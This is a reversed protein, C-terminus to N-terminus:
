KLKRFIHLNCFIHLIKKASKKLESFYLVSKQSRHWHAKTLFSEGSYLVRRKGWRLIIVFCVPSVRLFTFRAFEGPASFDTIQAQFRGWFFFGVLPCTPPSNLFHDPHSSSRWNIECYGLKCVSLAVMMSEEPTVNRTVSKKVNFVYNGIYWLFLFFWVTVRFWLSLNAKAEYIAIQTVWDTPGVWNGVCHRPNKIQPSIQTVPIFYLFNEIRLYFQRMNPHSTADFGKGFETLVLFSM